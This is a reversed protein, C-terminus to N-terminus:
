ATSQLRQRLWVAPIEPLGPHPGFLRTAHETGSLELFDATRSRDRLAKNVEKLHKEDRSVVLLFALRERDIADISADSLSGTSLAVYAAGFGRTKGALMMFEGSYSAGVYGIRGADIRRDRKLFDAAALVDGETGQLIATGEAPVFRGLNTSEGHGRLDVRLSAIGHRALAEAFPAYVSRDGAAKNLLVVAPGSATRHPVVLDAALRWGGSEITM